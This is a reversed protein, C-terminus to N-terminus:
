AEWMDREAALMENYMDEIEVRTYHRLFNTEGGFERMVHEYWKRDCARSNRIAYLMEAKTMKDVKKM